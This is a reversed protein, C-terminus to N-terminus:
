TPRGDPGLLVTGPRAVVLGGGALMQELERLKAIWRQVGAKDLPVSLTTNGHRITAVGREGAPTSVKGTILTWPLDDRLHLNGPDFLSPM